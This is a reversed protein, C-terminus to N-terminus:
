YQLIALLEDLVKFKEGPLSIKYNKGDSYTGTVVGTAGLSIQPCCIAMMDSREIIWRRCIKPCDKAATRSGDKLPSFPEKVILDPSWEERIYRVIFDVTEKCVETPFTTRGEFVEDELDMETEEPTMPFFEKLYKNQEIRRRNLDTMEGCSVLADMFDKIISHKGAQVQEEYKDVLKKEADRMIESVVHQYTRITDSMRKRKNTLIEYFNIDFKVCNKIRSKTENHSLSYGLFLM